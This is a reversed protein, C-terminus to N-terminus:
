PAIEELVKERTEIMRLALVAGIVAVGAFLIFVFNIGKAGLVFGVVAPAIAPALRLWATAFATGNNIFNNSNKIPAASIQAISAFYKGKDDKNIRLKNVNYKKLFNEPIIETSTVPQNLAKNLLPKLSEFNEIGKKDIILSLDINNVKSFDNLSLESKTQIKRASLESSEQIVAKELEKSSINYLINIARSNAGLNNLTYQEMKQNVITSSYVAMLVLPLFILAVFSILINRGIIFTM